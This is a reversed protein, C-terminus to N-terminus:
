DLAHRAARQLADRAEDAAVATYPLLTDYGAHGLVARVEALSAGSRIMEVGCQARLKHPHLNVGIRNGYRRLTDRMTTVAMRRGSEGVWMTRRSGLPLRMHLYALLSEALPEIIPIVRDKGGKGDVM